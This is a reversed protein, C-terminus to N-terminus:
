VRKKKGMAFPYYILLFILLLASSIISMEIVQLLSNHFLFILIIQIISAIIVFFSVLTKHISLYFNAFLSCLSYIAIFAGFIALLPSISLYNTGFLLSIMTQPLFYYLSVIFGAIGLTLAISIFFLNKYEKGAASKESVMPFLVITVPFSAFFIVKGLVSLAAYYGSDVGSFLNRVLIIDTTFLSTLGLSTFFVPISYKFIEKGESFKGVKGFNEKKLFYFAAILGILFSAGLAFFAGLAKFGFYVLIIAIGLKSVIELTNAIFLGFFNLLGQLVGKVLVAFIGIFFTIAMIVPIYIDPLHLFSTIAPALAFLVITVLGGFVILRKKLFYYFSSIADRDQKGKYASVFKVIILTLPIFPISVIYFLSIVSELVGYLEPGLMRGMLLHYFYNGANLVGTALFVWFSAKFFESNILKKILDFQNM